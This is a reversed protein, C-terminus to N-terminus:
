EPTRQFGTAYKLAQHCQIGVKTPIVLPTIKRPLLLTNVDVREIWRFM